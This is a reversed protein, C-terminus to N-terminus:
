EDGLDPPVSFGLQLTGMIMMNYLPKENDEDMLSSATIRTKSNIAAEALCINM